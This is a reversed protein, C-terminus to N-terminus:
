FDPLRTKTKAIRKKAKTTKRIRKKTYQIDNLQPPDYHNYPLMCDDCTYDFKSEGANGHAGCADSDQQNNSM